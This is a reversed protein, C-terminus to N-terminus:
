DAVFVRVFVYTFALFIVSILALRLVVRTGFKAPPPPPWSVTMQGYAHALGLMLYTPVVYCLSLSIMGVAYAAVSGLIFPQARRLEPDVIVTNKTGLRGVSWVAFYFVGVFFFGGLVGMDAFSQLYANHAVHKIGEQYTSTTDAEDEKAVQAGVGVLPSTRFEDMWERWLQIRAQGTGSSASFDTQRGAYFVLVLPLLVLGAALTKWGGLKKHLIAALGVLLALLGGRSHTLAIAYLFLGLPGMWIARLPGLRGDTLAFLCIPVCAALMLCLDNPDQFIGSGQMRDFEVEENTARDVDSDAIRAKFTPPLEIVNHFQLVTVLTLVLCCGILWYMFIQLRAPTNVLSVLLLYYVLVKFFAFGSDLAEPGKSQGLQSLVVLPLLCFVCLTIPQDSLRRAFLQTFVNPLSVAFCALILYQYIPWGYWEASIEGPRVFLAATVLLFLFFGM